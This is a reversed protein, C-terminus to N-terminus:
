NSKTEKYLKKVETTQNKSISNLYKLVENKEKIDLTKLYNLTHSGIKVISNDPKNIKSLYLSYYTIKILVEDNKLPSEIHNSIYKIAKNINEENYSNPDNIDSEAIKEQEKITNTIKTIILYNSYLDNIIKDKKEDIIEISKDIAKKNDKSPKDLYKFIYETLKTLENDKNYKGLKELYNLHYIIKEYKKDDKYEQYNEKLYTYSDEIDKITINSIDKITTEVEKKIEKKLDEKNTCSTILLVTLLLIIIKKM